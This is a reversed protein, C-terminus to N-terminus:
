STSDVSICNQKSFHAEAIRIHRMQSCSEYTFFGIIFEALVLNETATTLMIIIIITPCVYLSGLPVRQGSQAGLGIVRGDIVRM